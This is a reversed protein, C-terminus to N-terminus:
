NKISDVAKCYEKGDVRYRYAILREKIKDTAAIKIAYDNNETPDVRGDQLLLSVVKTHGNVCAFELAHKPDARGDQLLMEVVNALGDTCALRIAENEFATPDAGNALLLKIVDIFGQVCAYQEILITM